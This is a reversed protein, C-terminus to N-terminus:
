IARASLTADLTSLLEAIGLPKTLYADMGAARAAAIDELMADASIAICPLRRGLPSSRLARLVDLGHMDPLSMDILVVDPAATLAAQIGSKGDVAMVLEVNPRLALYAEMLVRNVEDDEIYLVRGGIDARTSVALPVSAPAVPVACGPQAAPLDVIFESGHGPESRVTLAGGMLELLNHTIVLGIGTGEVGSAERGLRNFPQFLGRLQQPTMGPGDDIVTLRVWEEIRALRVTATGGPRNYKIANSVLNAVVQRLRTRDGRASPAAGAPVELLLRVGMADASARLDDLAERVVERVDLDEIQLKMAGTEIRSLDLLDDILTLLHHGAKRVHELKAKQAPELSHHPDIQLLESFGLIANLPTRLEHSMRSVFESKARNSREAVVKARLAEEAAKHQGIDRVTGFFQGGPLMRASIEVQLVSGDKRRMRREILVPEGARLRDVQLPMRQLDEADILDGMRKALLEDRTYGLMRCGADNVETYRGDQGAIFIGDSAQQVVSRYLIESQELAQQALKAESLDRTVLMLGRRGGLDLARCTLELWARKGFSTTVPGGMTLPVDTELARLALEYLGSRKWSEIRHYNQALVQALSAGIDRAMAPNAALCNGEEDYICIGFPSTEIIRHSLQRESELERHVAKRETIDSFSTVVGVIARDADLLPQSNISIWRLSDDPKHLGMVDERSPRGTRLTKMAPHTDGSYPSGDEHVARWRPDISTRGALQDADLGLIRCAAPNFDVIRGAADQVVVGEALADFTSRLRQKTTDLASEMQRRQALPRAVAVVCVDDGQRVLRGAAEVEVVSGDRRLVRLESLPWPPRTPDLTALRHRVAEATDTPLFEYVAHGLVDGAERDLLRCMAPNAHRVRGERDFVWAGDLSVELLANWRAQCDELSKELPTSPSAPATDM